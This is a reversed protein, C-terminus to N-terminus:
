NGDLHSVVDVPEGLLTSAYDKLLAINEPTYAWRRDLGYFSFTGSNLDIVLRGRRRTIEGAFVVERGDAIQLHKVGSERRDTRWGVDFAGNSTLVYPLKRGNPVARVDNQGALLVRGNPGPIAHYIREPARDGYGFYNEGDRWEMTKFARGVREADARMRASIQEVTELRRPAARAVAAVAAFPSAGAEAPAPAAAPSAVPVAAASLTLPADTPAGAAFYAVTPRVLPALAPATLVGPSVLAPAPALRVEAFPTLPAAGLVVARAPAALVVATLLRALM